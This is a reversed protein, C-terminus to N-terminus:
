DFDIRYAILADWVDAVLTNNDSFTVEKFGSNNIESVTELLKGTEANILIVELARQKRLKMTSPGLKIAALIKDNPSVSMEMFRGLQSKWVVEDSILDYCLVVGDNGNSWVYRGSASGCIQRVTTVLEDGAHFMVTTAPGGAGTHWVEEKVGGHKFIEKAFKMERVDYLRIAGSKHCTLVANNGSYTMGSVEDYEKDIGAVDIYNIPDIYKDFDVRTRLHLLSDGINLLKPFYMKRKRLVAIGKGDESVGCYKGTVRVGGLKKKESASYLAISESLPRGITFKGGPSQYIGRGFGLQDVVTSELSRTSVMSGDALNFVGTTKESSRPIILCIKSDPSIHTPYHDLIYSDTRNLEPLTYVIFERNDNITNLTKEDDNIVLHKIRRGDKKRSLRGITSGDIMKFVLIEDMSAVCGYQAGFNQWYTHRSNCNIDIRSIIEGTNSDIMLTKNGGFVLRSGQPSFKLQGWSLSRSECPIRYKITNSFVDWVEIHKVIKGDDSIAIAMLRGDHSIDCNWSHHGNFSFIRERKKTNYVFNGLRTSVLIFEGTPNMTLVHVADVGLLYHESQRSSKVNWKIVWGSGATFYHNNDETIGLVRGKPAMIGTLSIAAHVEPASVLTYYFAFFIFPFSKM